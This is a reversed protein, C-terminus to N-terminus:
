KKGGNALIAAVITDVSVLTKKAIEADRISLGFTKELTVVLQLADVSDLDLSNTGMLPKDNPIDAPKVKLKLTTVMAEKVASALEEKTQM